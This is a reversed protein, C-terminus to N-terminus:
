DIKFKSNKMLNFLTTCFDSLNKQNILYNAQFTKLNKAQGLTYELKKNRQIFSKKELTRLKRIVTARPIGSIDSISSANIGRKSKFKLMSIYYDEYSSLKERTIKKLEERFAATQVIAISGWVNWSELDSFAKRHRTLYPIQFRYFYEWCVTFHDKIFQEINERKMSRGFWDEKSLLISMKEFFIALMPLTNKPKVIELAKSNLYIAKGSRFIIEKEQLYNIKRRITEKPIHLSKSIQILNIKEIAIKDINYFTDASMYHFRDSYNMFVKQKLYMLILYTDFDKFISYANNVWTQQFKYFPALADPALQGFIEFVLEKNIATHINEARNIHAIKIDVPESM